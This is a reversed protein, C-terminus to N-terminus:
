PGGQSRDGVKLYVGPGTLFSPLCEIGKRNNTAQALM